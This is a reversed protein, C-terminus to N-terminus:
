NKAQLGREFEIAEAVVRARAVADSDNSHMLAQGIDSLDTHSDIAASMERTIAVGDMNAKMAAMAYLREESLPRDPYMERYKDMNAQVADEAVLREGETEAYGPGHVVSAAGMATKEVVGTFFTWADSAAGSVPDRHQEAEVLAAMIDAKQEGLMRSANTNFTEAQEPTLPIRGDNIAAADQVTQISQQSTAIQGEATARVAAIGTEVQERAVGPARLDAHVAASAQGPVVAEAVGLNRESDGDPMATQRGVLLETMASSALSLEDRDAMPIQDRAETVTRWLAAANVQEDTMGSRSLDSRAQEFYSRASEPLKSEIAYLASESNAYGLASAGRDVMGAIQSDNFSMKADFTTAQTAATQYAETKSILDSTQQAVKESDSASIADTGTQGIVAALSTGYAESLGRMRSNTDAVSEDRSFADTKATSGGQTDSTSTGATLSGGGSGQGGGVGGKGSGAVQFGAGGSTGSQTGAGVQGSMGEGSRVADQLDMNRRIAEDVSEKYDGGRKYDATDTLGQLRGLQSELTQSLSVSSQAQETSSSSANTGLSRGLTYDRLPVGNTVPGGGPNSKFFGEANMGPAIQGASPSALKEDVMDGGQMRGALASMAVPGGMLIALALQPVAAALLSVTGLTNQAEKLVMMSGHPTLAVDKLAEMAGYFQTDGFAGIIALLPFYLVVWVTFMIYKGVLKLGMPGLPILFAVVPALAYFLAEFFSVSPRLLAVFMSEEGAFQANRQALAQEVMVTMAQNHRNSSDGMVATLYVSHMVNAMAFTQLDQADYGFKQFTDAMSDYAQDPTAGRGREHLAQALGKGFGDPGTMAAVLRDYAQSCDLIEMSGDAKFFETRRAPHAYKIRGLLGEVDTGAESTGAMVKEYTMHGMAIGPVTCGAMYYAMNKRNLAFTGSSDTFSLDQMMRLDAIRRINAGVAGTLVRETDTVSGFTTDYERALALGIKTVVTGVVALGMPVNDVVYSRPQVLHSPPNVETIIVRDARPIFFAYFMVFSLMIWAVDLQPGNKSTIGSFTMGLLGLMAGLAGLTGYGTISSVANIVFHVWAGDGLVQIEFQM